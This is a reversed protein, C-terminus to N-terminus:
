PPKRVMQINESTAPIEAEHLFAKINSYPVLFHVRLTEPRIRDILKMYDEQTEFFIEPTKEGKVIIYM